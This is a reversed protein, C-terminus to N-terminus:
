WTLTGDAGSIEYDAAVEGSSGWLNWSVLEGPAVVPIADTWGPLTRVDLVPLEPAGNAVVWERTARYDVRWLQTSPAPSALALHIYEWDGDWRAVTSDVQAGIASPVELPPPTAFLARQVYRYDDATRASAGISATDGAVLISPPAVSVATTGNGLVVDTGNATYLEAIVTVPDAGAGDVAPAVTPLDVGNTAVPLDITRDAALDVGRVIMMKSPTGDLVAVVDHLGASVFELSYAGTEDAVTEGGLIEDAFSVRANPATTGSITFRPPAISSPTCLVTPADIEPTAFRVLVRPALITRECAYAYGYRGSTVEFSAFGDWAPSLPEWPGDGDQAVLLMARETPLVLVYPTPEPDGACGGVLALGLIFRNALM